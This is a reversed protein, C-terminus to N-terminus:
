FTFSCPFTKEDPLAEFHNYKHLLERSFGDLTGAEMECHKNEFLNSNVPQFFGSVEQL